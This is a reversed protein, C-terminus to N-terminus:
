GEKKLSEFQKVELTCLTKAAPKIDPHLADYGLKNMRLNVSQKILELNAIDCNHKNGDMIKIVHGKPIPGNHKEWVVHQKPRYRTKHGTYPNTEAVKVLIYGDKSCVREHGLPKVNPPVQGPKFQTEVGGLNIGKMGKNWAEAHKEFRGTRGTKWGNRKRLSNLNLASIDTGFKKNFQATLESIVLTRNDSVFQLQEPTYHIAKPM